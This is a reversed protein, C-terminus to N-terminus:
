HAGYCLLRAEPVEVRVVELIRPFLCFDPLWSDLTLNLSFPLFYAFKDINHVKDVEVHLCRDAYGVVM